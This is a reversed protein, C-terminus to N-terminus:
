QAAAAEPSGPRGEFTAGPTETYNTGGNPGRLEADPDIVEKVKQKGVVLWPHSIGLDKIPVDILEGKPGDPLQVTGTELSKLLTNEVFRRMENTQDKNHYHYGTLQIVWGEASGGGAAAADPAPTTTATSTPAPETPAGQGGAAATEGPKGGK